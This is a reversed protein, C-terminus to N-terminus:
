SESRQNLKKLAEKIAAPADEPNEIDWVATEMPCLGTKTRNEIADVLERYYVPVAYKEFVGLARRSIIDAHVEKIRLLVYLCAAAKGVVRDAAFFGEFSQGEDLPDLLPKVGREHSTYLFNEGCVVCAYAGEALLNKAKELNNM